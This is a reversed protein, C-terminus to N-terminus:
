LRVDRLREYYPNVVNNITDLIYQLNQIRLNRSNPYASSPGFALDEQRRGAENVSEMYLYLNLLEEESRGRLKLLLGARKYENYASDQFLPMPQVTSESTIQNQAYAALSKALNSNTHLEARLASRLLYDGRRRVVWIAFSVALLAIILTIFGSLVYTKLFDLAESVISLPDM